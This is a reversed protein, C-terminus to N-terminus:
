DENEESLEPVVINKSGKPEYLACNMSNIDSPIVKEWIDCYNYNVEPNEMLHDCNKCVNGTM